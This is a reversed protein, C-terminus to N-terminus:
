LLEAITRNASRLRAALTGAVLQHLRAAVAPQTRVLEAMHERDIVAVRTPADAVIDASRPENGYFGMEGLITGAGYSRLRKRYETGPVPLYISVRGSLVMFLRDSSEGRRVFTEGAAIEQRSFSAEVSGSGDAPISGLLNDLTTDAPSVPLVLEEAWELGRDLDPFVRVTSRTLDLGCATMRARLELNIGSCAVEVGSESCLRFLKRLVLSSSADIGHVHWFDLVLAKAGPLVSRLEDLVTNSTGFFLHGHLVAGQICTGHTRLWDLAEPPREVNSHRAAGSFRHKLAAARSLHLVLSFVSALIGALVGTVVGFVVVCALIVLMIGYDALPMSARGEWLWQLLLSVGLYVVLGSLVPKPMWGLGQPFLFMLGLVLAVCIRASWPSVAGARLNLVSRNYSNVAVLGGLLGSLLNALGLAKLERDFDADRGVAHDLGTANLLITIVAVTTMAAFDSFHHVLLDWRVEAWPITFPNNWSGLELPALLLGQMRASEPSIGYAWRILHFLVVGAILVLPVALFHRWLRTLALLGLMVAGAIIWALAPVAHFQAATTTIPTSGCLMKWGGAVLLYGTGVLFGGVVPYPLYRVFRGWCRHGLFYIVIGCAAASAFLFMLVTPLAAAGGPSPAIELVLAAVSVALIASPNSDPGGLAFHFSSRWSLMLIAVCSSILAALMASSVHSALAGGFILTAFGSAYALTVLACLSGALLDAAHLRQSTM